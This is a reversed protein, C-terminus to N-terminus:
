EAWEVGRESKLYRELFARDPHGSRGEHTGEQRSRTIVEWRGHAEILYADMDFRSSYGQRVAGSIDAQRNQSFEDPIPWREKFDGTAFQFVSSVNLPRLDDAAHVLEDSASSEAAWITVWTGDQILADVVPRFDLDGSLLTARSMNGRYSHTLMDVAIAVDVKKQRQTRGKLAGEVVHVGSTRRFSTLLEEASGLREEFDLDSEGRRKAPLCDYYFARRFGSTLAGPDVAIAVGDFLAESLTQLAKRLYSGDVFLYATDAQGPM